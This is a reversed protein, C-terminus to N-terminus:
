CYKRLKSAMTLGCRRKQGSKHGLFICMEMSQSRQKKITDNTIGAATMNNCHIPTSPQPHGMEQLTLRMMRGEKCNFFLAGLKAEAVFTVVFKLIGCMIYLAGNLVIPKTPDSKSGLFFQGAVRSRARTESLDSADSHINLVMDSAHYRMRANDHTALYVLLQTCKKKTNETASAQESSISNLAPLFILDM